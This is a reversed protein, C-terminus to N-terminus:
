RPSHCVGQGWSEQRDLKGALTAMGHGNQEGSEHGIGQSARSEAWGEIVGERDTLPEWM